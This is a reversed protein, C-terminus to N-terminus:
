MVRDCEDDSLNKHSLCMVLTRHSKHRHMSHGIALSEDLAAAAMPKTKWLLVAELRAEHLLQHRPETSILAKEMYEYVSLLHKGHGAIPALDKVCLKFLSDWCKERTTIADQTHATEFSLNGLHKSLLHTALESAGYEKGKENCLTCAVCLHREYQRWANYTEKIQLNFSSGSGQEDLSSPPGQAELSSNQNRKQKVEQLALNFLGLAIEGEFTMKGRENLRSQIAMRHDEWFDSGFFSVPQSKVGMNKEM